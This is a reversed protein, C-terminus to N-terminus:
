KRIVVVGLLKTGLSSMPVTNTFTLRGGAEVSSRVVATFVSTSLRIRLMGATSPVSRMVPWFM